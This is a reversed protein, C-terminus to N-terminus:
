GQDENFGRRIIVVDNVQEAVAVLARSSSVLACFGVYKDDWQGSCFDAETLRKGQRAHLVGQECLLRHPFARCADVLALMASRLQMLADEDGKKARLVTDFSVADDLSYSGSQVRRLASLHGVTGLALSLDRAFSRVYFGKSSHLVLDIERARLSRLAAEHLVVSRVPAVVDEGRRAREYLSQGDRKIASFIPARQEIPGIMGEVVQRLQTDNLQPVSREEEVAGEADLTDTSQGLSVTAEYTKDEASLYHLLKTGEGIGLVLLGTAMPDLTGAHGIARIGLARRLDRVVDHSSM